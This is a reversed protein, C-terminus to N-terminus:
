KKKGSPTAQVEPVPGEAQPPASREVPPEPVGQLKAITEKAVHLQKEAEKLMSLPVMEEPAPPRPESEWAALIAAEEAPNDASRSRGGPNPNELWKPYESAM